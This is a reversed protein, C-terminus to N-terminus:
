KLKILRITERLLEHTKLLQMIENDGINKRNVLKSVHNKTEKLKVKVDKDEESVKKSIIDIGEGIKQIQEVFFKKFEASNSNATNVYEHLIEKQYKNFKSSYTQNFNEIMFDLALVRIDLPSKKFEQISENIDQEVVEQKQTMLKVLSNLNNNIEIQENLTRKNNDYGNFVKWIEALKKYDFIKSSFLDNINVYQKIKAIAMYKERDLKKQNLNSRSELIRNLLDMAVVESDSDFNRIANYMDLEKRLQTKTAFVERIVNYSQPNEKGKALDSVLWKLMVEFIIGTNKLKKHKIQKDDNMKNMDGIKSSYNM